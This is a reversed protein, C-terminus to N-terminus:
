SRARCRRRRSSSAGSASSARRRMPTRRRRRAAGPARRERRAGRRAARRPALDGLGRGRVAAAARPVGPDRAAGVGARRGRPPAGVLDHDRTRSVAWSDTVDGFDILRRADPHRSGDHVRRQRRHPRPAGGAAAADPALSASDDGVGIGRCGRGAAAEGPRSSPARAARRRSRRPASGVAARPRARPADFGHSPSARAPPSSAWARSSRPRSTRTAPSRAAPSTSSAAADRAPGREDRRDVSRPVGDADSPRRRWACDRAPPRSARRPTGARRARGGHVRPEHDERGRCRGPEGAARPRPLEPGAPQRATRADVDLGWDAAAIAAVEAAPLNPAPLEGAAFFDFGATHRTM